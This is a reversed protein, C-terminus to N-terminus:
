RFPTRDSQEDFVTDLRINGHSPCLKAYKGIVQKVIERYTKPTDM